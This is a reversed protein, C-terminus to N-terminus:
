ADILAKAARPEAVMAVLRQMELWPQGDARGQAHRPRRQLAQQAIGQGFRSDDAHHLDYFFRIRIGRGKLRVIFMEIWFTIWFIRAPENHVQFEFAFEFSRESERFELSM